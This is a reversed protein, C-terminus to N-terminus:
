ANDHDNRWRLVAAMAEKEADWRSFGEDNLLISLQRYYIEREEINRFTGTDDQFDLSGTDELGDERIHAFERSSGVVGTNHQFSLPKEPLSNTPLQTSQGLERSFCGYQELLTRYEHPTLVIESRGNVTRHRLSM